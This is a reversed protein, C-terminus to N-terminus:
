GHRRGMTAAAVFADPERALALRIWGDTVNSQLLARLDADDEHGAVTFAINNAVLKRASVRGQAAPWEM